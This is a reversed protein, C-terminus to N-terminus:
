FIFQIILSIILLHVISNYKIKDFILLYIILLLESILSIITRFCEFMMFIQFIAQTSGSLKKIVCLEIRDEFHYLM